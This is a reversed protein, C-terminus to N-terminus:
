FSSKVEEVIELLEEYTGRGGIKEWMEEGVLVERDMDMIQKTARHNYKERYVYPNYPFALYTEPKKNEFLAQFYFLKEKSKACINRTPKPRKIELFLPGPKFDGIFLDAVISINISEGSTGSLIEKIERDQNPKRKGSLLEEIIQHAVKVRDSLVAGSIPYNRHADEYKERAIIFALKPYLRREMDGLLSRKIKYFLLAEDPFFVSHFPFARRIEEVTFNVKSLSVKVFDVITQKVERRTEDKM